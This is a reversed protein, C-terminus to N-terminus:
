GVVGQGSLLPNTDRQRLREAAFIVGLLLGVLVANQPLARLEGHTFHMAAAVAQNAILIAAAVSALRERGRVLVALLAIACAMESWGVLRGLSEPLWVTWAGYRALAALTAFAKNWGVFCFFATLPIALVAAAARLWNVPM